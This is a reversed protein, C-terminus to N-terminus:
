SSLLFRFSEAKMCDSDRQLCARKMLQSLTKSSMIKFFPMQSALSCNVFGKYSVCERRYEEEKVHILCFVGAETYTGEAPSVHLVALRYFLNM